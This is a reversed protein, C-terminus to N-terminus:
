FKGTYHKKKKIILIIILVIVLASLIVLLIWLINDDDSDAEQTVAEPPLRDFSVSVTTDAEPMTFTYVNEFGDVKVTNGSADVVAVNAVQYGENPKATITVTSGAGATDKSLALKGNQTESVSISFVVEPIEEFSVAVDVDSAPMVFDFTNDKGSYTVMRGAGDTIVLANVQYGEDPTTTVVVCTDMTASTHDATFTGNKPEILTISYDVPATETVNNNEEKSQEVANPKERFTANVTVNESPMKFTYKGEGTKNVNTGSATVSEVQYGAEPTATITITDGANGGDASLSISGGKSITGKTVSYSVAKFTAGITVNSAPMTFTHTNGNSFVDVNTSGAVVSVKDLTYGDDPKTTLTVTCNYASQLVDSVISGNVSDGVSIEYTEIELSAPDPLALALSNGNSDSCSGSIFSFVANGIAGDNLSFTFTAVTGTKTTAGSSMSGLAYVYGKNNARDTDSFSFGFISGSAGVFTLKTNDFSLKFDIGSIGVSSDSLGVVATVTTGDGSVSLSLSASPDMENASASVVLSFILCMILFFIMIRKLFGSKM